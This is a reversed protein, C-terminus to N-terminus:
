SAGVYSLSDYLSGPGQHVPSPEQELRAVAEALVQLPPAMPVEASDRSNRASRRSTIQCQTQPNRSIVKTWNLVNLFMHQLMLHGLSTLIQTNALPLQDAECSSEEPFGLCTFKTFM